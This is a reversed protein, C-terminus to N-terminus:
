KTTFTYYGKGNIDKFNIIKGRVIYHKCYLYIKKTSYFDEVTLGVVNHLRNVEKIAIIIDSIPTIGLMVNLSKEMNNRVTWDEVEAQDM